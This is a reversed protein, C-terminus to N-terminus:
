GLCVANSDGLFSDQSDKNKVLSDLNNSFCHNLDHKAHKM